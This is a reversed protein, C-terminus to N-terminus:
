RTKSKNQSGLRNFAKQVEERHVQKGSELNTVRDRLKQAEADSIEAPKGTRPDTIYHWRSDAQYKLKGRDNKYADAAYDEHYVRAKQTGLSEIFGEFYGQAYYDNVAKVAMDAKEKHLDAQKRAEAERKRLETYQMQLNEYQRQLDRQETLLRMATEEQAAARQKLEEAQKEAEIAASEARAAEANQKETKAIIEDILREKTKVAQEQKTIQAIREKKILTYGFAGAVSIESEQVSESGKLANNALRKYDRLSLDQRKENVEYVELGYSQAIQYLHERERKQWEMTANNFQMNKSTNCGQEQLAKTLSNRTDMGNKYGHAVPVWDLHLHPTEEDMHLSANFLYLNPNREQFTEAYEKLAAAARAADIPHEKIGTTDADGLMVITEYFPKEANKKDQGNMISQLYGEVSKKRDARKQKENYEEISKSFLIEYAEEVSESKFYVNDKMREKDINSRVIKRENHNLYGKGKVFSLTCQTM